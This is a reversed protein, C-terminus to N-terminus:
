EHEELYKLMDDLCDDLCDYGKDKCKILSEASNMTCMWFLKIDWLYDDQVPKNWIRFALGSQFVKDAKEATTM